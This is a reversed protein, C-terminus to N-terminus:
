QLNDADAIFDGCNKVAFSRFLCWAPREVTKKRNTSTLDTVPTTATIKEFGNMFLTDFCVAYGYGAM